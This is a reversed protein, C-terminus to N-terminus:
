KLAGAPGFVNTSMCNAWSKYDIDGISANRLGIVGANNILLDIPEDDIERKLADISSQDDVDLTYVRIKDGTGILSRLNTAAVPERCCAMVQWGDTAYQKVFEFGIGRNAGKILATFM